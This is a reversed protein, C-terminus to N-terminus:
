RGRIVPLVSVDQNTHVAGVDNGEDDMMPYLQTGNELVIVLGFSGDYEGYQVDVIKKGLMLQKAANTWYKLRGEHTKLLEEDPNM